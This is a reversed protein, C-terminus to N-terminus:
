TVGSLQISQTHKVKYTLKDTQEKIFTDNVNKM